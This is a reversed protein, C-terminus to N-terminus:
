ENENENGGMYKEINNIYFIMMRTRTTIGPIKFTYEASRGKDSPTFAILEEKALKEKVDRDSVAFPRGINQWYTRVVKFAADQMMCVVPAEKIVTRVGIYAAPNLNYLAPSAAIGPGGYGKAFLATLFKKVPTDGVTEAAHRAMLNAIGDVLSAFLADAAGKELGYTMGFQCLLHAQLELVAATDAYRAVDLGAYKDRLQLHLPKLREMLSMGNGSLFQVYLALFKSIISPDHQFVTLVQPDFTGKEVPVKLMRFDASQGLGPDEEGTIFAVARVSRPMVKNTKLNKKVRLAGEGVARLIKEFNGRCEAAYRPESSNYDDFCVAGAQLALFDEVSAATSRMAIRSHERNTDFPVCLPVTTSTKFTNTEGCLYCVFRVNIGNKEMFYKTYGLLSFLFLVSIAANGHGVDLYSIGSLFTQQEEGPPVVPVHVDKSEEEIGESFFTNGRVTFWGTKYTQVVIEKSRNMYVKKLYSPFADGPNKSVFTEPFRKRILTYIDFFEEKPVELIGIPKERGTEWVFSIECVLIEDFDTDDKYREITRIIRVKADTVAIEDGNDKIKFIASGREVHGLGVSIPAEEEKDILAVPVALVRGEVVQTRYVPVANERANVYNVIKVPKVDLEPMAEPVKPAEWKKVIPVGDTHFDKVIKIAMKVEGRCHLKKASAGASQGSITMACGNGAPESWSSRPVM